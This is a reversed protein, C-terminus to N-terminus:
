LVTARMKLWIRCTARKGQVQQQSCRRQKFGAANAHVSSPQRACGQDDNCLAARGM